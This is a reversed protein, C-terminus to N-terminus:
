RVDWEHANWTTTQDQGRSLPVNVMRNGTMTGVVDYFVPLVVVQDSLHRLVQQAAEMRPQTPITVLYRNIHADLEPNQYSPYNQGAYRNEPVRAESSLFTKLTPVSNNGRSTDFSPFTARYELDSQRGPTITHTEAAIGVGQWDDATALVTKQLIDIVTARIEISLRQGSPSRYIGDAGRSLGMEEFIQTARRPEYAYRVVSPDLAAFERDTPILVSHAVEALGLMLTDALQQRNMAHYLARRFRVDGVAAPTPSHLQPWVKISGGPTFEVKGDTWRDRVQLTQEFSLGRGIPLEVSGALINAVLTTPDSIFKVEIEDIKPRGLVYGDFAVLMARSGQAWERIRFPGAGVFEETWYPLNLFAGKNELFAPELIHRPLPVPQVNGVAGFLADAEIHPKTWRVIVTRDDLAEASEVAEYAQQGFQRLDRDQAITSTFVLDHATFATGDHWRAGERIKWSTEMRGDPFVKWGGNEVTPVAEALQPKLSGAQDEVSLGAHVLQELERAGPLTGGAARSLQSRASPLDATVAVVIRKPGSSRPAAGSPSSSTAPAQGSPGCAGLILGVVVTAVLLVRGL